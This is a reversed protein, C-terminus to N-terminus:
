KYEIIDAAQGRWAAMYYRAVGQAEAVKGLMAFCGYLWSAGDRPDRRAAIRAMQLPYLLAAGLSIPHVLAGLAIAGPLAAGWLMARPVSRRWIQFPSGRHRRSVEAFAYGGRSSRRWWQRLRTMAADHLTMEADLRWIQWGRERLRVCLEPEEGAILGADFGKVAQFADTRALFDGGCEETRGIATNWEIDCLRNFISADPHRERRRGCVIAIDPHACLFLRAQELWSPALVCDGDVFQVFRPMPGLAKLREFGSNRARAATFPLASDLHMVTAGMAEAMHSSDDTSGSDVYVIPCGTARVSALCARLREGENRGIVVVAIALDEAASM